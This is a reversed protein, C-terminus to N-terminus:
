SHAWGRLPSSTDHWVEFVCAAAYISLAAFAELPTLPWSGGLIVVFVPYKLLLFLDGVVSRHRPRLAYWAAVAADLLILVVASTNSLCWRAIVLNACAM